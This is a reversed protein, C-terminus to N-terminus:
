LLDQHFVCVQPLRTFNSTRLRDQYFVLIIALWKASSPPHGEVVTEISLM